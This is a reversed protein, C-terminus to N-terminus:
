PTRSYSYTACFTSAQHWSPWHTLFAKHACRSRTNQTESQIAVKEVLDMCLQSDGQSLSVFPGVVMPWFSTGTARWFTVIRRRANGTCSSDTWLANGQCVSAAQMSQTMPWGGVWVVSPLWALTHSSGRRAVDLHFCNCVLM